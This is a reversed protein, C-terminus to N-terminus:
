FVESHRFQLTTGLLLNISLVPICVLQHIISVDLLTISYCCEQNSSWICSPHTCFHVSALISAHINAGSASWHFAYHIPWPIRQSASLRMRWELCWEISSHITFHYKLSHISSHIFFQTRTSRTVADIGRFYSTILLLSVNTSPFIFLHKFISAHVNYAM